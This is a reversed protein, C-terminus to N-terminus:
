LITALVKLLPKQGGSFTQKKITRGSEDTVQNAETDWHMGVM